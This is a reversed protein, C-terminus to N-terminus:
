FKGAPRTCVYRPCTFDYRFSGFKEPDRHMDLWQAQVVTRQVGQHGVRPEEASNLVAIRKM